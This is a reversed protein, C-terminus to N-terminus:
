ATYIFLLMTISSKGVTYKTNCVVSCPQKHIYHGMATIDLM